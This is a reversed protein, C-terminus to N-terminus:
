ALLMLLMLTVIPVRCRLRIAWPYTLSRGSTDAEPKEKGDDKHSKSTM